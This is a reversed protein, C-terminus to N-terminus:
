HTLINLLSVRTQILNRFMYNLGAEVDEFAIELAELRKNVMQTRDIKNDKNVACGCLRFLAADLSEIENAHHEEGECSVKGKRVLKSVLSWKGGKPKPGSASKRFLIAQLVSITILSIERLATIVMLM